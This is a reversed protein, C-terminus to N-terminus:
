GGSTLNGCPSSAVTPVATFSVSGNLFLPEDISGPGIMVTLQTNCLLCFKSLPTNSLGGKSSASLLLTPNPKRYIANFDLSISDVQM